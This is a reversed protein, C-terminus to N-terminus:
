NTKHRDRLLRRGGLAFIAAVYTMFGLIAPMGAVLVEDLGDGGFAGRIVDLAGWTVVGMVLSALLARAATEALRQGGFGQVRRWLLYGCVGTHIIHKTTDAIMLSFLGLTEIRAVAIVMYAGLSLVGVLAPTLTDQRAYFAYVLLLDLAAFPLGILYLRLVLSTAQTDYPLFEESEYVLDIVPTALVFLGVAAPIILMMVLRLGQGLTAKYASSGATAQRSLTPLIAVSVATAVLGQPLQVLQTAFEMWSISSEGTHSALSYSVTRLVLVDLVLSGMVPMYLGVIRRVGPHRWNLAPRLQADRLGPLQLVTQAAAGALWGLAMAEIDLQRHLLLTVLVITGNFVAGAFAPLSFRKLAYLLGSLVAALSLFLMAPATIRLLKVALAQAEPAAGSNVVAVLQPALLEMLLVLAALVVTVLSLVVSVLRWLERRTHQSAYDSFVPV